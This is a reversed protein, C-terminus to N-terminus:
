QAAGPRASARRLLLLQDANRRSGLRWAAFLALPAALWRHCALGVRFGSLRRRTFIHFRGLRRYQLGLRRGLGALGRASFFSIHQGTEFAYYSWKEPPPPCGDPFVETTFIMTDCQCREMNARVFELPDLTHELVEIATIATCRGCSEQYEFGRALANKAYSDSWYFDFGLDRMLRTLLGYGGAIDVYRGSGREGLAFYLLSSLKLASFINRAAIDTDSEVIADSYAEDLWHVNAVFVYDCARCYQYRAAHRGLVTQEFLHEADGQCLPCPVSM